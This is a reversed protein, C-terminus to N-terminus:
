QLLSAAADEAAAQPTKALTLVDFLAVSLADIVIKDAANPFAEGRELEEQLFSTYEDEDPWQEFASRRAPLTMSSLSWEGLNSGEALWSLLEAAM